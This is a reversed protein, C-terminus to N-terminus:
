YNFYIDECKEKLIRKIENLNSYYEHNKLNLRIAIDGSAENNALANYLEVQIPSFLPFVYKDYYFKEFEKENIEEILNNDAIINSDHDTDGKEIIFDLPVRHGACFILNGQVKFYQICHWMAIKSIYNRTTVADAEITEIKLWIKEWIDQCLDEIIVDNTTGAYKSFSYYSVIRKIFKNYKKHIKNFKIENTTM